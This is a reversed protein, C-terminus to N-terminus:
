HEGESLALRAAGFARRTLVNVVGARRCGAFGIRVVSTGTFPTSAEKYMVAALIPYVKLSGTVVIIMVLDRPSPVTSDLELTIVADM